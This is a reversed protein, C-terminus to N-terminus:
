KEPLTTKILRLWNNALISAIHDETYGKEGLLPVLKQLDAISDIGVPTSGLGFSGDFDSGIGVHYADGAIQCIHDIHAVVSELSVTLRTDRASWEPVLFYNFPVIGIVGDRDIIGQIVDDPLHRNGLAGKLLAAANSHTAAIAAPYFDLAELVAARDMHSLDLIFGLDAMAELLEYGQSTLPGPERTGGCFRNGLWAPGIIRVGRKWWEELEAPERVCEAGEMLLLLGTPRGITNEEMDQKEQWAALVSELDTLNRIRQFKTPNDEELREYSDLQAGYLEGAQNQDAYCQTDWEGSRARAPAAFLTAFIVAVNGHQYEPWGLLTDGNVKPAQSDKEELRTQEASRTYDRNFTLMNWALDQHADVILYM